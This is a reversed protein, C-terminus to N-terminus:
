RRTLRARERRRAPAARGVRHAARAGRSQVTRSGLRADEAGESGSDFRYTEERPWRRRAPSPKDFPRLNERRPGGGDARARVAGTMLNPGGASRGSAGDGEVRGSVKFGTRDVGDESLIERAGKHDVGGLGGLAFAHSLDEDEDGAPRM